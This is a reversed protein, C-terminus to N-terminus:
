LLSHFVDGESGESRQGAENIGDCCGETGELLVNSRCYRVERLVIAFSGFGTELFALSLRSLHSIEDSARVFEAGVLGGDVGTDVARTARRCGSSSMLVVVRAAVGWDVQPPARLVLGDPPNV